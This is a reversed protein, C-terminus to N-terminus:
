LYGAVRVIGGKKGHAVGLGDQLGDMGIGYAGQVRPQKGECQCGAPLVTVFCLARSSCVDGAFGGGKGLM